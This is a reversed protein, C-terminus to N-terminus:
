VVYDEDEQEDYYISEGTDIQISNIYFVGDNYYPEFGKTFDFVQGGSLCNPNKDIQDFSVVGILGADVGYCNGLNDSYSGDGYMTTHTWFRTGDKMVFGGSLVESGAITLSCFEDWRDGLVYCLDGVYYKGPEFRM